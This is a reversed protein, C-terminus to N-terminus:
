VQKGRDITKNKGSLKGALALDVYADVYMETHVGLDKLDSQVLLQGVTNPMSGIGLQLCAGNPIERVIMEAVKRDVETPPASAGLTPVDNDAGEVIWDVDRVSIEHGGLGHGSPIKPNVEVIVTKAAAIADASHSSGLAFNFYGREDMPAVQLMVVDVRAGGDRYFRPLESYRMPGFFGMGSEIIKRDIGSCHWSHWTFHEGADAGKCIEPMRMTVGSRVKVDTLEARRASLACDLLVPQTCCWGYEVWDGSKVLRAAAEPTTLKERYLKEFDSM